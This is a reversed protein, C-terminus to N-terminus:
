FYAFAASGALLAAGLSLANSGAGNTVTETVTPEAVAANQVVSVPQVAAPQVAVPQAYQAYNGGNATAYAKRHENAPAQNAAVLAASAIMAVTFSQM